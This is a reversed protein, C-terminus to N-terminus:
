TELNFGVYHCNCEEAHSGIDIANSEESINLRSRLFTPTIVPATFRFSIFQVGFSKRALSAM